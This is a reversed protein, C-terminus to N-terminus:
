FILLEISHSPIRWLCPLDLFCFAWDLLRLNLLLYLIAFATLKLRNLPLERNQLTQMMAVQVPRSYDPLEESDTWIVSPNIGNARLALVTQKLLKARHVLFLVRRDSRDSQVADVIMKTAIATKGSGTPASLLVAKIGSRFFAYVEAIAQQQYDRLKIASFLQTKQLVAASHM